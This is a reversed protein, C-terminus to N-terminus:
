SRNPFNVMKCAKSFFCRVVSTYFFLIGCRQCYVIWFVCLHSLLTVQSPHPPSSNVKEWWMSPAHLNLDCLCVERVVGALLCHESLSMGKHAAVLRISRNFLASGTYHMLATAYESEPVVFIDLRRHQFILFCVMKRYLTNCRTSKRSCLLMRQTSITGDHKESSLRLCVTMRSCYITRTQYPCCWPQLNIEEPIHCQV